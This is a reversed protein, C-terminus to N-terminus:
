AVYPPHISTEATKASWWNLAQAIVPRHYLFLPFSVVGMMGLVKNIVSHGSMRWVMFAIVGAFVGIASDHIPYVSQSLDSLVTLGLALAFILTVAWTKLVVEGDRRAKQGVWIGLGFIGLWNLAFVHGFYVNWQAIEPFSAIQRALFAIVVFVPICALGWRNILYRLPIFLVYLQLFLAICWLPSNITFFEQESFTTLMLLRAVIQNISYSHGALVGLLAFVLVALWFPPIIKAVRHRIFAGINVKEPVGLGLGLGSVLIFLHFGFYGFHAVLRL